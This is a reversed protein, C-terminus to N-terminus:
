ADSVKVAINLEFAIEDVKTKKGYKKYYKGKLSFPDLGTEKQTASAEEIKKSVCEKVANEVEEDPIDKPSEAIDTAVVKVFYLPCLTIKGEREIHWWHLSKKVLVDM